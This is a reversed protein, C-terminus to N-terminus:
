AVVYAQVRSYAFSRDRALLLRSTDERLQIKSKLSEPVERPIMLNRFCIRALPKATRAVQEFTRATDDLSMLECINSLSFADISSEPRGALWVKVAATVVEIRDLRERVISLTERRLWAPVANPDAYRGLLYQAIFYNTAIPIECLARKSREFFSEAFSSTGDDFRFYDASLGRRALIRKNFLLRFLIRWQVTNWVRDFYHRQEEISRSQFLGDIRKRGQTLRLLSRFHRLFQEYRGQYVVGSRVAAPRSRWYALAPASLDGALSEFMEARRASPNLGLFSHLDDFDLRRVAARKLELLHSQCPNIDVAFVQRPDELLLSLTNCGGSSITVVADGPQIQLARRDSQPDERSMGFLLEPLEIQGPQETRM